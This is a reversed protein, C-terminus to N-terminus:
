FGTLPTELGLARLRAFDTEHIDPAHTSDGCQLFFTLAAEPDNDIMSRIGLYYLAETRAAPTVAESLLTEPSLDGSLVGAVTEIWSGPPAEARCAAIAAPARPDDNLLLLIATWLQPYQGVQPDAAAAAYDALALEHEGLFEYVMGRRMRGLAAEGAVTIWSTLDALAQQYRGLRVLALARYEYSGHFTPLMGISRSFSGVAEEYRGAFFLVGGRLRHVTEDDGAFTLCHDLDAIAEDFRGLRLYTQARRQYGRVRRPELGILTNADRLSDDYRGALWYLFGREVYIDAMGPALGAATSFDDMARGPENLATYSRARVVYASAYSPDLAICRDADAVSRDHEGLYSYAVARDYWWDTNRPNREIAMSLADVASQYQNLHYHAIGRLGHIHHGGHGLRVAKDLEALAAQFDGLCGLRCAKEVYAETLTPDLAIARDLMAVAKRHDPEVCSRLCHLEASDPRAQEIQAIYGGLVVSRRLAEDSGVGHEHKPGVSQPQGHDPHIAMGLLFRAQWDDAHRAVAEELLKNSEAPRGQRVLAVAEAHVADRSDPWAARARGALERAEDFHESAIMAWAQQTLNAAREADASGMAREADASAARFRLHSSAWLAGLTISVAALTTALKRRKVFRAAREIPMERRARIPLDLSWRRLDDAFEAASAYRNRRERSIAKMCITELGAPIQRIFRSPPAADTHQILHIVQRDDGAAYVPRFALLEYLTAGLAYIDALHQDPRAGADSGLQEPAMYRCTGLLSDSTTISQDGIPRALGFDSIMLRGDEALLLNSPKIDRHIIGRDHAYQLADAVEAIWHAVRRYYAMSVRSPNSGARSPSAQAADPNLVCDVAGTEEIESLIHRLSRGQILQMTYYLTGDAEGYDYVSIINTHDLGAALEAERRFRAKYEPRVVGILAPLVKIAVRRRLKPQEALYVIGMGGRGIERILEYDPLIESLRRLPEEVSITTGARVEAAWHLDSELAIHQSISDARRRCADCADLHRALSELEAETAEGLVLREFEEASPCPTDLRNM